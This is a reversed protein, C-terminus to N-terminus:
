DSEPTQLPTSGDAKVLTPGHVNSLVKLSAKAERARLEAALKGLRLDGHTWTTIIRSHTNTQVITESLKGGNQTVIGALAELDARTGGIRLNLNQLVYTVGLWRCIAMRLRNQVRQHWKLRQPTEVTGDTGAVAELHEPQVM